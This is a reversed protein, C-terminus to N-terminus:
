KGLVKDQSGKSFGIKGLFEELDVRVAVLFRLDSGSAKGVQGSDLSLPKETRAPVSGDIGFLVPTNPIGYRLEMAWRRKDHYQNFEGYLIDVYGGYRPAGSTEQEGELLALRFGGALFWSHNGDVVNSPLFVNGGKVIPASFSEFRGAPDSTGFLPAYFSIGFSGVRETSTVAVEEAQGDKKETKETPVPSLRAELGIYGRHFSNPAHAHATPSDGTSHAFDWVNLNANFAYYSSETGFNGDSRSLTFGGTFSYNARVLFNIPETPGAGLKKLAEKWKDINELSDARKSKHDSDDKGGDIEAEIEQLRRVEARLEARASDIALQRKVEAEVAAARTAAADSAPAPAGSAAPAPAPAAAPPGDASIAIAPPAVTVFAALVLFGVSDSRRSHVM